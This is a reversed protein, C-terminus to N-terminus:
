HDCAVGATPERWAGSQGLEAPEQSREVHADCHRAVEIKHQPTSRLLLLLAQLQREEDPRYVRIIKM